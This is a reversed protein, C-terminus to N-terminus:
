GCHAEISRPPTGTLTNGAPRTSIRTPQFRKCALIEPTHHNPNTAQQFRQCPSRSEPLMTLLSSPGHMKWTSLDENTGHDPRQQVPPLSGFVADPRVVCDSRNAEGIDMHGILEPRRADLHISGHGDRGCEILALAGAPELIECSRRLHQLAQVQLVFM